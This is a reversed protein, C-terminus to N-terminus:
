RHIVLSADEHVLAHKWQPRCRCDLHEFVSVDQSLSFQRIAALISRDCEGCNHVGRPKGGAVPECEIRIDDPVRQRTTKLVEVVTWLWPPRYQGRNWLLEVLTHRQVNVPNVSVTTVGMDAADLITSVADMLADRETLFPPGVLVYARIGIDYRRATEVAARFQEVTFGKNLCVLRITDSSSELEVGIEIRAHSVLRRVRAMLDDTVFEPRSEIVVHRVRSDSGVRQLIVDRAEPPVEVPDLFSGSTYIKVSLMDKVDSVRRMAHEFQQVLNEANVPEASGDLLYSCM